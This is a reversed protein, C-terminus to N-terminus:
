LSERYQGNTRIQEETPMDDEPRVAVDATLTEVQCTLYLWVYRFNGTPTANLVRYNTPNIAAANYPLQIVDGTRLMREGLEDHIAFHNFVVETKNTTDAGWKTLETEIPEPKFFAKLFLPQWYTPDPDEDWVADFDANETRVFVKVEAGAINIQEQALSRALRIDPNEPDHIALKSHRQDIGSRYSEWVSSFTGPSIQGTNAAFRHIGM